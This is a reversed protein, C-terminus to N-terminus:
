CSDAHRSMRLPDAEAEAVIPPLEIPRLLLKLKLAADLIPDQRRVRLRSLERVRALRSVGKSYLALYSSVLRDASVLSRTDARDEVSVPELDSLRDSLRRGLTRAQRLTSLFDDAPYRRLALTRAVLTFLTRRYSKFGIQNRSHQRYLVRAYPDFLIRGTSAACLALWWDHCIADGPIPLAWELLSRSVLCTCGTVFNQVLLTPLAADPEHRLRMSAHLSPHITDLDPGVVVLDGHLLVCEEPRAKLEALRAIQCELKEPRWVDDQDSIAIWDAGRALAAEMLLSFSADSGVHGHGDRLIELRSDRIALAELIEVTGDTSGDDRILLRWDTHSQAFISEVQERIHEAGEFTSLVIYISQADNPM